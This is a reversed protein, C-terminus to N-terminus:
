ACGACAFDGGLKGILLLSM